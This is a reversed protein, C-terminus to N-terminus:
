GLGFNISERAEPEIDLGNIQITPSGLCRLEVAKEPSTVLITEVDVVISLEKGVREILDIAPSVNPCGQSYLVHAHVSKNM